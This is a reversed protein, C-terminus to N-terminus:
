ILNYKKFTQITDKACCERVDIEADTLEGKSTQGIEVKKNAGHCDSGITYFVKIGKDKFISTFYTYCFNMIKSTYASDQDSHYAEVGVINTIESIRQALNVVDNYKLTTYQVFHAISFLGGADRIIKIADFLDTQGKAVYYKSEENLFNDFGENVSKTLGKHMLYNAVHVRNFNSNDKLSTVYNLFDEYSVCDYDKGINEVIKQLQIRKTDKYSRMMEMLKDFKPSDFDSDINFYGLCHIEEGLYKTTIETGMVVKQGYKQSAERLDNVGDLNNHDSIAILELGKEKAKQVITDPTYTGDSYTSHIHLDISM